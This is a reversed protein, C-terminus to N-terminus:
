TVHPAPSVSRAVPVVDGQVLEVGARGLLALQAATNVGRAGIRLGRHRAVEIAGALTALAAEREGQPGHEDEAARVLDPHLRLGDLPLRALLSLSAVGSGFDDLLVRVGLDRVAQIRAAATPLDSVIQREAVALSLGDLVETLQEAALFGALDEFEVDPRALRALVEFGPDRHPGLGILFRGAQRLLEEDLLSSMGTRQALDRLAEGSLPEADPEDLGILVEVGVLAGSTLELVHQFRTTVGAEGGFLRGVVHDDRVRARVSSRLSSDFTQVRNRGLEKARYLAADAQEVLEPGTSQGDDHTV